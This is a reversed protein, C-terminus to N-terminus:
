LGKEFFPNNRMFSPNYSRGMSSAADKKEPRCRRLIMGGGRIGDAEGKREKMKDCCHKERVSYSNGKKWASKVKAGGDKRKV